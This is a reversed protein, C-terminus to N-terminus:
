ERPRGEDDTVAAFQPHGPVLVSCGIEEFGLGAIRTGQVIYERIRRTQKRDTTGSLASRIADCQPECLRDFRHFRNSRRFRFNTGIM